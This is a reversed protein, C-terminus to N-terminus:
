NQSFIPLPNISMGVYQYIYLCEYQSVYLLPLYQTVLKTMDGSGNSWKQSKKDKFARMEVM